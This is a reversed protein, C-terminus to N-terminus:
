HSRTLVFECLSLLSAREPGERLPRAAALARAVHGNAVAQCEAVVPDLDFAARLAERRSGEVEGRLLRDLRQRDPGSLRRALRIVPLTVKGTELDTGLSKGVVREEGVLDLCDDIVQFAMGLGDGYAHLARVEAECGGAYRAGLSCAASYLAATKGRIVRLYREEDPDESFRFFAQEIEGRVIAQSTAALERAAHTTSLTLSLAFARAYVLDGLLVPVENGHLANLTAVQRRTDARDLVDDHLLSALHLSEVIAGLLPHEPTAHGTAGACLHVLAPRLRKGGFRGVHALLARVSEPEDRHMEVLWRETAQLGAAVPAFLDAAQALSM